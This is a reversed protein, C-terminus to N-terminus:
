LGLGFELKSQILSKNHKIIKDESFGIEPILVSYCEEFAKLGRLFGSINGSWPLCFAHISEEIKFIRCKRTCLVNLPLLATLFNM